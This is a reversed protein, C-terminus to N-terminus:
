PSLIPAAANRNLLRGPKEARIHSSVEAAFIESASDAAMPQTPLSFQYLSTTPRDAKKRYLGLLERSKRIAKIL